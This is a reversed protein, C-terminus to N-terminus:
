GHMFFCTSLPAVQWKWFINDNIDSHSEPCKLGDPAAAKAQCQMKPDVDGMEPKPLTLSALYWPQTNAIVQYPDPDLM